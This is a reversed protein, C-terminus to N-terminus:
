FLVILVLLLCFMALMLCLMSLGSVRRSLGGFFKLVMVFIHVVGISRSDGM